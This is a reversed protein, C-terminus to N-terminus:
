SCCFWGLLLSGGLLFFNKFYSGGGASDTDDAHQTSAAPVGSPQSTDRDVRQRKSPPESIVPYAKVAKEHHSGMFLTRLVTAYAGCLKGRNCEEGLVRTGICSKVWRADDFEFRISIRGYRMMLDDLEKVREEFVNPLDEKALDEARLRQVLHESAQEEELRQRAQADEALFKAPINLEEYLLREDASLPAHFQAFALTNFETRARRYVSRKRRLPVEEEEREEAADATPTPADNPGVPSEELIWWHIPTDDVM